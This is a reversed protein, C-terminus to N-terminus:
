DSMRLRVQCVRCRPHDDEFFLPVPSSKFELISLSVLNIPLHPILSTADTVGIEQSENSIENAKKKLRYSRQYDKRDERAEPSAMYRNQAARHRAKYGQEGCAVSCYVQGRWCSQCVWFSCGCQACQEKKSIELEMQIVWSIFM